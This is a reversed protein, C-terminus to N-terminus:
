SVDDAGYRALVDSAKIMARAIDVVRKNESRARQRLAEFAEDKTMAHHAMVLGVAASIDRNTDVAGTLKEASSRWRHLDHSREIASYIVPLLQDVNVPKVLYTLAGHRVAEAVTEADGYASLFIHPLETYTSEIHDALETGSEGPMKTDIIVLDFVGTQLQARADDASHATTVDLGRANLGRKLTSTVLQDDDVLLLKVPADWSYTM